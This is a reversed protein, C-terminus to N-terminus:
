IQTDRFKMNQHPWKSMINKYYWFLSYELAQWKSICQFFYTQHNCCHLCNQAVTRLLWRTVSSAGLKTGDIPKETCKWTVPWDCGTLAPVPSTHSHRGHLIFIDWSLTHNLGSSCHGLIELNCFNQDTPLSASLESYASTRGLVKTRLLSSIGLIEVSWDQQQSVM